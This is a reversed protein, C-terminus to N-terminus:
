IFDIETDNLDLRVARSLSCPSLVTPVIAPCDYTALQSVFCVPIPLPAPM